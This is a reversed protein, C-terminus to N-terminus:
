SSQLRNLYMIKHSGQNINDANYYLFRTFVDELDFIQTNKDFLQDKYIRDLYNFFSSKIRMFNNFNANIIDIVKEHALRIKEDTKMTTKICRNITESYISRRFNNSQDEGILSFEINSAGFENRNKNEVIGIFKKRKIDYSFTIRNIDIKVSKCSMKRKTNSNDNLKLYFRFGFLIHMYCEEFNKFMVCDRLSQNSIYVSTGIPVCRHLISDFDYKRAIDKSSGSGEIIYSVISKCLHNYLEMSASYVLPNIDMIINKMSSHSSTDKYLDILIQLTENYWNGKMNKALKKVKQACSDVAINQNSFMSNKNLFPLIHKSDYVYDNPNNKFYLYGVITQNLKHPDFGNNKNFCKRLDIICSYDYKPLTIQLYVPCEKYKTNQQSYSTSKIYPLPDYLMFGSDNLCSGTRHLFNHIISNFLIKYEKETYSKSKIKDLINQALEKDNFVNYLKMTPCSNLYDKSYKRFSFISQDFNGIIPIVLSNMDFGNCNQYDKTFFPGNELPYTYENSFKILEKPYHIISNLDKSEVIGEDYMRFDGVLLMDMSLDPDSKFIDDQDHHALLEKKLIHVVKDFIIKRMPVQNPASVYDIYPLVVRDFYGLLIQYFIDDKLEEVEKHYNLRGIDRNQSYGYIFEFITTQMENPYQHLWKKDICKFLLDASKKKTFHNRRNSMGSLILLEYKSNRPVYHHPNKNVDLLINSINTNSHALSGFAKRIYRRMSM